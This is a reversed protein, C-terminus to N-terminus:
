REKKRRKIYIASFVIAISIMTATALYPAILELKNIPIWEGGVSPTTVTVTGNKKTHPIESLSGNLLYTDYLTLDSKGVEIAKFNLTVLSTSNHTSNGFLPAPPHSTVAVWYRGSTNNIRQTENLPCLWNSGWIDPPHINDSTCSLITKNWSLKFEFSFMNTVNEVYIDISFTMNKVKYTQNPVVRLRTWEEQAMSTQLMTLLLLASIALITRKKLETKEKKEKPQGTRGGSRTCELHDEKGTM